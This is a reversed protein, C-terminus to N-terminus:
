CIRKHALPQTSCLVFPASTFLFLSKSGFCTKRSLEPGRNLTSRESIRVLPEEEILAEWAMDSPEVIAVRRGGMKPYNLYVDFRELGVGELSADQFLDEVWQALFFNGKTGAIHDFRTAHESYASIQTENVHEQLFVRVSEPDYVQMGRRRGVTLLDSVFLLYALSLVLFLAFFRGLLIWNMQFSELWSPIRARIYDPSPLYQRFPLNISSLSHTFSAIRKSLLNARLSRRSSEREGPELMDMQEMERRLGQLSARPSGEHSSPLLDLSSRAPENTPADYGSSRQSVRQGLLGQREADHSVESPGLFSQSSSPRSTIAEDYTPIPLSQQEEYKSPKEDAMPVVM